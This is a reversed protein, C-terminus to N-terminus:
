KSKFLSIVGGRITKYIIFVILILSLLGLGIAYALIKNGRSTQDSINKDKVIIQGSLGSQSIRLSNITDRQNDVLTQDVLTDRIIKTHTIVENMNKVAIGNSDIYVSVNDIITDLTRTKYETIKVPVFTKKEQILTDIKTIITPTRNIATIVCPHIELWRAAVKPFVRDSGVVVGFAKDEKRILAKEPNCSVALFLMFLVLAVVFSFVLRKIM